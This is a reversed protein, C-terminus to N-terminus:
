LDSGLFIYYECKESMYLQLFSSMKNEKRICFMKAIRLGIRTSLRRFTTSPCRKVNKNFVHYVMSRQDFISRTNFSLQVIPLTSIYKKQYMSQLVVLYYQCSYTQANAHCKKLPTVETRALCDFMMMICLLCCFVREKNYLAKISSSLYAERARCDQMGGARYVIALHSTTIQDCLLMMM